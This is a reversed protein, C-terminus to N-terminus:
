SNLFDFPDDKASPKMVSNVQQMPPISMTPPRYGGNNNLEAFNQGVGPQNYSNYGMGSYAPQSGTMSNYTTQPPQYMGQGGGQPFSPNYGYTNGGAGLSSSLKAIQEQTQKIQAELSNSAALPTPQVPPTYGSHYSSGPITNSATGYASSTSATPTAKTLGAFIDISSSVSSSSAVPPPSIVPIPTNSPKSTSYASSSAAITATSLFAGNNPAVAPVSNLNVPLQPAPMSPPPPPVNSITPVKPTNVNYTTPTEIAKKNNLLIAKAGAFPDIMNESMSITDQGMNIPPMGLESTRLTIVKMLMRRVLSVTLEFQQKNLSRDILLPQITPLIQTAIYEVGVSEAATEYNGVVCMSVIPDSEKEKIYKLSPLINSLIYHRDLRHSILSIFYLAVAKVAPEPNKCAEKCAKPVIKDTLGNQDIAKHVAEDCLIQLCSTQVGIHQKDLCNSFLQLVHQYFFASDFTSQIFSINKLFTLMTEAPNTIALGQAISPGAIKQYTLAPLKTSIYTHVPFVYLWLASNAACLKCIAPLIATQLIRAPFPGLQSPLGLLISSQTGIDRTQLTDISKLVALSGTIFYQHNMLDVASYRSSTDPQIMGKIFSSVGQNVFSFDLVPITNRVATEHLLANNGQINLTPIHTRMPSDMSVSGKLNFQYVEYALMGLSFIDSTPTLYRVNANSYGGTTLEPASYRVDPELRPLM